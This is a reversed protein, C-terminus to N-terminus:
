VKPLAAPSYVRVGNLDQGHLSEDDDVFAIPQMAKSHFLVSSLQLGSKGAGYIIVREKTRVISNHVLSRATMRSGGVFVLALCWYIIPVSRPMEANLFFASLALVLTSITVGGLVARMAHNSMYRIVARYLGLKIFCFLSCLVTLSMVTAIQWSDPIYFADLRLSFALWIALPLSISDILLSVLRKQYRPLFLLNNLM